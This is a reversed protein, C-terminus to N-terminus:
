GAKLEHLQTTLPTEARHVPPSAEETARGTSHFEGSMEQHPPATPPRHAWPQLSANHTPPVGPFFTEFACERTELDCM